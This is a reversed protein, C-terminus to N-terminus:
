IQFLSDFNVREFVELEGDRGANYIRFGHTRSYREASEYDQKQAYIIKDSEARLYAYKNTKADTYSATFHPIDRLKKSGKDAAKGGLLSADVGILIMETFGMYAAIQMMTYVVTHGSYVGKSVDSSFPTEKGITIRMSILQYLICVSRLRDRILDRHVSPPVYYPKAILKNKAELKIIDEFHEAIFLPDTVCFFDPRWKTESFIKYIYNCAFSIEGNEHLMDLDAARLSPGNGIIFCRKGSHTNKLVRVAPDSEFDDPSIMDCFHMYRAIGADKLQNEIAPTLAKGVAVVIDYDNHIRCLEEFSIVPKDFCFQGAKYNDAFCKVNRFGLFRLAWEGYAGAGFIIIKKETLM